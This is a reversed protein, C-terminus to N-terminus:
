LKSVPFLSVSLQYIATKGSGKELFQMLERRFKKIKEKAKKIKKPNICMTISSQDRLHIETTDLAGIAQNLISKELKKFADSTFQNNITTNNNITWKESGNEHISNILGIKKLRDIATQAINPEIMLKESIYKASPSFDEMNSLELIAYHYWDAIVTFRDIDIGVFGNKSDTDPIFKALEPPLALRTSINEIIKKSIKKKNRLIKSLYSSDIGLSKAFARVSYNKNVKCRRKLESALFEVFEKQVHTNEM